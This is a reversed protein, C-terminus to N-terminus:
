LTTVLGSHTFVSLYESTKLSSTYLTPQEIKMTFTWFSGPTRTVRSRAGKREGESLLFDGMM